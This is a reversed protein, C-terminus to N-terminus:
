ATLETVRMNGTATVWIGTVIGTFGYPVEYYTGASMKVSFVTASVTGAGLLVFCASASDNFLTLGRRANNAAKLTVASASGSVSTNAGTGGGQNGISVVPMAVMGSPAVGVNATGTGFATSRVRFNTVGGPLDALYAVTANTALTDATLVAGDNERAVQLPFYNTGDISAEFVVSLGSYTGLIVVSAQGLNSAAATVSQASATFTGTSAAPQRGVAQVFLGATDGAIPTTSGLTGDVLKVQQFVITGVEDAAVDGAGGTAATVGAVNRNDAM